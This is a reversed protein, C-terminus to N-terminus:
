RCRLSGPDAVVNGVRIAARKLPVPHGTRRLIAGVRAVLEAPAFPRTLYDDAGGELGTVRDQHGARATLMIVPLETRERLQRLVEFGDVVPLMVDLIVLITAGPSARSLGQRGDLAVELRYGHTAFYEAVLAGLEADDDILLIPERRRLASEAEQPASGKSAIAALPTTPVITV